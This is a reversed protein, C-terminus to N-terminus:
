IRYTIKMYPLAQGYRYVIYEDSVPNGPYQGHTSHYGKPASMLDQNLVQLISEKGLVVKNYYMIRTQNNLDAATYGHSVLPNDAFYAGHGWNGKSYNTGWYRDDFGDNLIGDIADGKTGHFLERENPNQGPCQKAILQKMAIYADELLPNRIQEISWVQVQAGIYTKMQQVLSEYLPSSQPLPVLIVHYKPPPDPIVYMPQGLQTWGRNQMKEIRGKVIDDIPRLVQFRKNKINDVIIELDISFPKHQIDVRMGLEKTYDKELSLNSVDFDIRDHTLAVHPEILDMTFAGTKTKEDLLIIYRWDERFVKCEIQYKHLHDQFKDIDFYKHSPLHCDLDSPILNKDMYPISDNMKNKQYLIWTSPDGIPRNTYNGVTWDRVFGGELRCDFQCVAIWAVVEMRTERTANSGKLSKWLEISTRKSNTIHSIKEEINLCNKRMQPKLIRPSVGANPHRIVACTKLWLLFSQFEKQVGQNQSDRGKITIECEDKITTNNVTIKVQQQAEWRWIMPNFIRPMKSVSELNRAMRKFDAAANASYLNTLKFKMEVVLQKLIDLEADLVFGAAGGLHLIRNQLQIQINPFNQKVIILINNSNLRTEEATNLIIKRQLPYEIWQSKIEGLFSLVATARISSSFRIDRALILSVPTLTIARSLTSQHDLVAVDERSSIYRTFLHTKGQLEKMSVFVNDKYGYLLSKAILEWKNKTIQSKERYENLLNFSKELSTYRRLAQRLVHAMLTLQKAQCIKNLNFQQAPVSERILLIENMVNLLSMFDGEIKKMSDPIFKLVSSTNLVGLISSLVILDRGCNYENLAALISKSMSLSGFDPLTSIAIGTLTLKEQSDLINLTKLEDIAQNIAKSSPSNPLYEKIYNLGQKIISKRLSFEINVLESQCIQPIPYKKQEIKFDYLSYYEGPKTRGLRGLRQKITSEAARTEMLITQKKDFDYVPINIMGTDIVYKLSPFTLSTEAVTTSFFISGHEINNQQEKASQSQILPFAIITRRSIEELLRCCQQVESVSSVFCLIQDHRQRKQCLEQVLDLINQNPRPIKTVPYLTGLNPMQFEAFKLQAIQRFLNPVSLDLTASSIIVKIKTKLQPKEKLLRAILALCLDINISREHVEDIFFVITKNLKTQNTILNEDHLLREKLLGDTLYLIQSKPEYEAGSVAWGALVFENKNTTMTENVRNCISTCPLRRPQTVIVKDYGEAILLAPLLSSKGSGTSTAITIVTNRDIKDLLEKSTEYLPLQLLFCRYYLMIRQLLKPIHKLQEFECGHYIEDTQFEKKVKNIFENMIQLSKNSPKKEFKLRESWVHQKIYEDLAEQKLLELEPIFQKKRTYRDTLKRLQISSQFNSDTIIQETITKSEQLIYTDFLIVFEEIKKKILEQFYKTYYKWNSSSRIQQTMIHNISQLTTNLQRQYDTKTSQINNSLIQIRQLIRKFEDHHEQVGTVSACYSNTNETMTINPIGVFYDNMQHKSKMHNIIFQLKSFLFHKVLFSEINIYDVAKIQKALDKLQQEYAKRNLLQQQLDKLLNNKQELQQEKEKTLTHKSEKQQEVELKKKKIQDKLEEVEAELKAALAAATEDRLTTNNKEILTSHNPKGANGSASQEISTNATTTTTNSSAFSLNTPNIEDNLDTLSWTGQNDTTAKNNSSYIIDDDDGDDDDDDDDDGNEISSTTAMELNNDDNEDHNSLDNTSQQEHKDSKKTKPMQKLHKTTLPIPQINAMSQYNDIYEIKKPNDESNSILQPIWRIYGLITKKNNSFEFTQLNLTLDNGVNPINISIVKRRYNMSDNLLASTEADCSYWNNLQLKFLSDFMAPFHQVKLSPVIHINKDVKEHEILMIQWISFCDFNLISSGRCRIWAMNKQPDQEHKGSRVFEIMSVDYLGKRVKLYVQQQFQESPLLAKQLESAEASTFRYWKQDQFPKYEWMCDRIPRRDDDMILQTPLHHSIEGSYNLVLYDQFYKIIEPHREGNQIPTELAQNHIFYNAGNEVLYKVITLHKNFCAGHLATSAATPRPIYGNKNSDLAFDVDRQNQANVSCHAEEILYKVLDLYDNRAASYLLTTEWLGPKNKFTPYEKIFTKVKDIEGNFAAPFAESAALLGKLEQHFSQLVSITLSKVFKRQQRDYHYTHLFDLLYNLCMKSLNQLYENLVNQINLTLTDLLDNEENNLTFTYITNNLQSNQRNNNTTNTQVQEKNIKSNQLCNRLLEILKTLCLKLQKEDNKTSM